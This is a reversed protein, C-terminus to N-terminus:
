YSVKLISYVQSGSATEVSVIDGNSRGMLSLALPCVWSINGTAHNIEQTGVIRVTLLKDKNDDKIQVFAGFFVREELNSPDRRVIEADEINIILYKIKSDIQRLKRKGYIYDGNESRDGNGAAWSVVKVVEPRDIRSLQNLEEQLRQFGEPTIYNKKDSM